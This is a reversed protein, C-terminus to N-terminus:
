SCNYGRLWWFWILRDRIFFMIAAFECQYLTLGVGPKPELAALQTIFVLPEFVVHTTGGRYLTMLHYRVDGSPTLSLRPEAIAPKGVHHAVDVVVVQPGPDVAVVHERHELGLTCSSRAASLPLGIKPCM